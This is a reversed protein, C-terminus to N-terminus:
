SAPAQAGQAPWEVKRSMAWPGYRIVAVLMWVFLAAGPIEFLTSVWTVSSPLSYANLASSGGFASALSFPLSIAGFGLLVLIVYFIWTWRQLAGIIAVAAIAFGILAGVWLFASMMTTMSNVFDPPPPSVDPNLQTQRQVAQNFVQGMISSMWFPLSLAYLGSIAYWAAVAYQMPKTWPTPVRVNAPQPYNSYGYPAAVMGTMPVWASGSWRWRGDPSLTSVWRQGDWYYLGDDSMKPDAM